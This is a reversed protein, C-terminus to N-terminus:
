GPEGPEREPNERAPRGDSAGGERQERPTTRRDAASRHGVPDVGEEPPDVGPQDGDSQGVEGLPREDLDTM